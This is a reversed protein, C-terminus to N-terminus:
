QAPANTQGGPFTEIIQRIAQTVREIRIPGSAERTSWGMWINQKTRNDYAEITLTREEYENVMLHPDTVVEVRGYRTMVPRSFGMQTVDVKPVTQGHLNFSLDASGAPAEVLGRTNLSHVLAAQVAPGIRLVLGPDSPPGQRPLPLLAFTKYRSFDTGAKIDHNVNPKTACGILCLATSLAFLSPNLFRTPKM